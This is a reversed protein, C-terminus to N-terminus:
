QQCYVSWRKSITTLLCTTLELCGSIFIVVRELFTKKVNMDNMQSEKYFLVSFAVVVVVWRCCELTFWCLEDFWYHSYIYSEVCATFIQLGNKGERYLLLLLICETKNLVVVVVVKRLLILVDELLQATKKHEQIYFLPLFPLQFITISIVAQGCVHWLWKSKSFFFVLFKCLMFTLLNDNRLITWFSFGVYDHTYQCSKRLSLLSWKLNTMLNGWGWRM